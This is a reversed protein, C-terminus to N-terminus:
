CLMENLGRMILMGQIIVNTQVVLFVMTHLCISSKGKFPFPPTSKVATPVRAIVRQSFSIPGILSQGLPLLPCFPQGQLPAESLPGEAVFSVRCHVVIGLESLLVVERRTVFHSAGVHGKNLPEVTNHM